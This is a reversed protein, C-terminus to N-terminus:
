EILKTIVQDLVQPTLQQALPHETDGNYSLPVCEEVLWLATLLLGVELGDFEITKSTSIANGIVDQRDLLM